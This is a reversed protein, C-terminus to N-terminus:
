NIPDDKKFVEYVTMNDLIFENIKSFNSPIKYKDNSNKDVESIFNTYLYDANQFEQGIIKIRSRDKKDLLKVSRELPLWSAVGITIIKKNKELILIEELFKRGSLGWYDVEFKKHANNNFMSNFYINQYPHYSIMKYAVFILYLIVVGFHTKTKSLSKIKLDIRYFAYISIYIIFINLFYIQRWGTYLSVNFSVFYVIISTINFLIFLDKKEKSGRWLDSYFNKERVNLFKLFFRKFMQVYGILFFIVYLLPTTILVWIFIYNYPLLDTGVYSGDFLMKIRLPIASFYNFALSFNLFPVALLLPWFLILFLVYFIFFFTISPLDKLNKTNSLVSLLFFIFFSIPIFFGLIRHSTCLAALTSFILLNKYSLKDLSKFCYYLTITVLSLFVLDKNNFFSNGYIRPSLIFFLTGILAINYNIFRNLLLKYFFVSSIFFLIFNLLHKFYFYNKPDNIQFLVELFAIPLDFVVGYYPYTEPLPLTFGHIQNIKISVLNKFDDFSTFNLIYNLWYFGSSRHFEEDISIGYDKFTFLGTLFLTFFLLFTIKKSTKKNIKIM